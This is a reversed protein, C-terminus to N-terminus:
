WEGSFRFKSLDAEPHLEMYDGVEYVETEAGYEDKFFQAEEYAESRGSYYQITVINESPYIYEVIYGM